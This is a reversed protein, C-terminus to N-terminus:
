LRGTSPHNTCCGLRLGRCGRIRRSFAIRLRSAEEARLRPHRLHWWPSIGRCGDVPAATSRPSARPACAERDAESSSCISTPIPWALYRTRAEENRRADQCHNGGFSCRGMPPMPWATMSSRRSRLSWRRGIPSQYFTLLEKLEAETFHEAYTRAPRIWSNMRARPTTKKWPQGRDRQPREGVHFNTQQFQNKVKGVVGRVLQDFMASVGKIQVIQKAILISAPSPNAAAAPKPSGPSPSRSSALWRTATCLRAIMTTSWPNSILAPRCLRVGDPGGLIATGALGIFLGHEMVGTGRVARAALARPDAIRQLQADLLWHGGDTVFVHGSKDKRLVRRGRVSRRPLLRKSRASHQRLGSPRSRSRCRFTGLM